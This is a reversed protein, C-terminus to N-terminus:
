RPMARICACVKADSQNRASVEAVEPDEPVDSTIAIREWSMTPMAGGAAASGMEVVVKTLDRGM